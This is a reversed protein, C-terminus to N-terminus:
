MKFRLPAIRKTGTGSITKMSGVDKKHAGAYGQGHLFPKGSLMVHMLGHKPVHKGYGLHVSHRM